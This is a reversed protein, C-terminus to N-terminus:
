RKSKSSPAGPKSGQGKPILKLQLALLTERMEQLHTRHDAMVQKANLIFDDQETVKRNLKELNREHIEIRRKLEAAGLDENKCASLCAAGLLVLVLGKAM